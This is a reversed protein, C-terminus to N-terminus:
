YGENEDMLQIMINKETSNRIKEEKKQEILGNPGLLVKLTLFLLILGAIIGVVWNIYVNGRESRFM